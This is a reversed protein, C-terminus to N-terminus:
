HLKQYTSPAGVGKVKLLITGKKALISTETSLSSGLIKSMREPPVFTKMMERIDQVTFDGVPLMGIAKRVLSSVSERESPAEPNLQFDPQQSDQKITPASGTTHKGFSAVVPQSESLMRAVRKLAEVDAEKEAQLKLIDKLDM